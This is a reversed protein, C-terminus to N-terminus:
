PAPRRAVNRCQLGSIVFIPCLSVNAEFLRTTIDRAVTPEFATSLPRLDRTGLTFPEHGSRGADNLNLLKFEQDGPIRLV